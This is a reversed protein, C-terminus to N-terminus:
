ECLGTALAKKGQGGIAKVVDGVNTFGLAGETNITKHIQGFCSADSPAATATGASGVLALAAISGAVLIRKM